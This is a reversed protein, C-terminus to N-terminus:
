KGYIFQLCATLTFTLKARPKPFLKLLIPLKTAIPYLMIGTPNCFIRLGMCAKLVACCAMIRTDLRTHLFIFGETIAICCIIWHHARRTAIFSSGPLCHGLLSRFWIVLTITSASGYGANKEVLAFSFEASRASTRPGRSRSRPPNNPVPCSAGEGGAVPDDPPASYARGTHNPATGRDGFPKWTNLTAEGPLKTNITERKVWAVKALALAIFFLRPAETEEISAVASPPPDCVSYRWFNWHGNYKTANYQSVHIRIIRSSKRICWTLFHFIPCLAM